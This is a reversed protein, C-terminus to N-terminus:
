KPPQVPALLQSPGRRRQLKATVSEVEIWALKGVSAFSKAKTV